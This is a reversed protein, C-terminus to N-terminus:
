SKNSVLIAAVLLTAMTLTTVVFMDNQEEEYIANDKLLAAALSRDEELAYITSGTFDYKRQNGSM